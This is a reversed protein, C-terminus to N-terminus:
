SKVSVVGMGLLVQFKSSYRVHVYYMVHRLNRCIQWSADLADHMIAYPMMADHVCNECACGSRVHVALNLSGLPVQGASYCAPGWEKM